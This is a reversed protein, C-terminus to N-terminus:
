FVEAVGLDLLLQNLYIGKDAVEQLFPDSGKPSLNPLFIDAVYRNYIDTKISKLIFFPTSNLIKRLEDTAKLGEDTKAEAANIKALRIIEEHWMGFGLDINAHITDGDVIRKLYAKYTYVQKPKASSKVPKAGQMLVVKADRPLPQNVECFIGFGLDFFKKDSGIVDIIKYTFLKGRTPQIKGAKKSFSPPTADAASPSKPSVFESNKNVFDETVSRTGGGKAFSAQQQLEDSDWSNEKTLDELAQRESPDKIGSLVRYHSWNLKPDDKPLKPYTQYFGRMKYLVKHSISTDKELKEFLHKGYTSEDKKELAQDIIQGIQWAMVVKDRTIHNQTQTISLQVQKLIKQYTTKTLQM